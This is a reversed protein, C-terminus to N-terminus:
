KQAMKAKELANAMVNEGNPGNLERVDIYIGMGLHKFLASNYLQDGLLPIALIPKGACSAEIASNQGCHSIFLRL